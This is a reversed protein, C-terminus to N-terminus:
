DKNKKLLSLPTWACGSDLVNDIMQIIIESKDEWWDLLDGVTMENSVYTDFFNQCYARYTATWKKLNGASWNIM